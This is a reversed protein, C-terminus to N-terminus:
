NLSFHITQIMRVKVRVGRQKGANWKTLKLVRIAEEDCGGGIGKIVKIDSLEGTKNVTFEVFVKGKIGTRRAPDPYKLNKKLTKYFAEYGGAPSPMEEVPIFREESKPEVPLEIPAIAVPEDEKFAPLEIKLEGIEPEDKKVEVFDRPNIVPKEEKKVLYVHDTNPPYTIDDMIPDKDPVQFVVLESKWKFAMIVLTLSTILGVTFLVNHHRHVDYVPNKKPEM